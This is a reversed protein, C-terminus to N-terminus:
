INVDDCMNEPNIDEVNTDSKYLNIHRINYRIKIAGYQLTVTGNTWCQTIVFPGKYPTKHKYVAHKNIM